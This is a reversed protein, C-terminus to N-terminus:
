MVERVNRKRLLVVPNIILGIDCPLQPAQVFDLVYIIEGLAQCM